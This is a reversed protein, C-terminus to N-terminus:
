LGPTIDLEAHTNGIKLSFAGEKGVQTLGRNKTVVSSVRSELGVLSWSSSNPIWKEGMAHQV